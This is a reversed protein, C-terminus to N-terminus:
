SKGEENVVDLKLLAECAGVGVGMYLSLYFHSLFSCELWLFFVGRLVESANVLSCHLFRFM